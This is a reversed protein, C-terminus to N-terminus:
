VPPSAPPFKKGSLKMEAYHLGDQSLSRLPLGAIQLSLKPM